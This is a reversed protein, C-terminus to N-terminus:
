GRAEPSGLSLLELLRTTDPRAAVIAEKGGHSLRKVRHEVQLALGREGIPSRFALRFPGRGRLYKAGRGGTGRHEDMRREVDTAIGTYLAGDRTRVLYLHWTAGPRDREGAM